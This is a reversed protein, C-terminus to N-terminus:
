EDFFLLHFGPELNGSPTLSGSITSVLIPKKDTFSRFVQFKNSHSHGYM